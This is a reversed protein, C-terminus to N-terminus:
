KLDLTIIGSKCSNGISRTLKPRSCKLAPYGLVCGQPHRLIQQVLVSLWGARDVENLAIGAAMNYKNTVSHFHDGEVWPLDLANELAEGLTSKGCGAVGM